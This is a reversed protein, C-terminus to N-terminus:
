VEPLFLNKISLKLWFSQLQPKKKSGVAGGGEARGLLNAQLAMTGEEAPVM